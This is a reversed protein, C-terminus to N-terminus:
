EDLFGLFSGPQQEIAGDLQYYANLGATEPDVEVSKNDNIQTVTRTVSWLRIEDLKGNFSTAPVGSGQDRGGLGLRSNSSFLIGAGAAIPGEGTGNIVFEVTDDSTIRRIAVHTWNTTSTVTGTSTATFTNTGNTSFSFNLKNDSSIWFRYSRQNTEALWKSVLDMQADITDRLIWLEITIAPNIDLTPSGVAYFWEQNVSILSVAATSAPFPLTATWETGGNGTLTNGNGTLDSLDLAM